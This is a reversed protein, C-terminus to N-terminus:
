GEFAQEAQKKRNQDYERMIGQIQQETSVQRNLTLPKRRSLQGINVVPMEWLKSVVSLRSPEHCQNGQKNVIWRILILHNRRIYSIFSLLTKSWQLEQVDVEGCM